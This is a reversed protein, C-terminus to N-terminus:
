SAAWARLRAATPGTAEDLPARRADGCAFRRREEAAPMYDYALEVLDHVALHRAALLDDAVITIARCLAHAALINNVCDIACAGDARLTRADVGRRTLYAALATNPLTAAHCWLEGAL